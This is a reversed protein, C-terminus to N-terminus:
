NYVAVEYSMDARGLRSFGGYGRGRTMSLIVILVKEPLPGMELDVAHEEMNGRV